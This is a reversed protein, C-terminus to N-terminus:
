YINEINKGGIAENADLESNLLELKSSVLYEGFYENKIKENLKIRNKLEEIKEPDPDEESDKNYKHITIERHPVNCTPYINKDDEFISNM